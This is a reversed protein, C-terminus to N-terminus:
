VRMLSPLDGVVATAHRMFFNRLVPIENVIGLGVRRMTTVCANDNSFLRNLGDTVLSLAMIDFHRLDHYKRLPIETGIDLGAYHNEHMIDTLVAIDRLGLNFGQGAIPHVSHAADGVLATRKTYFSHAHHFHIPYSLIKGIQTLKGLSDGFRRRLEYTFVDPSAQLLADAIHSQETWVLSCQNGTLPLIAFPGSPLFFEQAIGEHPLEHAVTTVIGKQGYSKQTINIGSLTRIHSSRGDAGILLKGTLIKDHTHLIIKESLHNDISLIDQEYHIDIKDSHLAITQLLGSRIDPNQIFYGLPQNGVFQHDFHLFYSSAGQRLTGDSVIIDLIPQAFEKIFSWIGLRKLMRVSTINLATNRGDYDKRLLSAQTGREVICSKLGIHAFSLATVMGALGGGAILVDYDQTM